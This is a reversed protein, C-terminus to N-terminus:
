WAQAASSACDPLTLRASPMRCLPSFSPACGAPHSLTPSPRFAGGQAERPPCAVKM